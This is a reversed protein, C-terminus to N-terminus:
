DRIGMTNPVEISVVSICATLAPGQGLCHLERIEEYLQWQICAGVIMGPDEHRNIAMAHCDHIDSGEHLALFVAAILPKWVAHYGHYGSLATEIILVSTSM